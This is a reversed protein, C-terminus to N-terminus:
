QLNRIAQLIEEIQVWKDSPIVAVFGTCAECGERPEVQVPLPDLAVTKGVLDELCAGMLALRATLNGVDTAMARVTSAAIPDLQLPM